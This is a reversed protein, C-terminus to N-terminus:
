YTMSEIVHCIAALMICRVFGHGKAAIKLPVHHAPKWSKVQLTMEHEGVPRVTSAQALLGMPADIFAISQDIAGLRTASATIQSVAIDARGNTVEGILGASCRWISAPTFLQM